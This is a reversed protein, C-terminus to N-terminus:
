AVRGEGWRDWASAVVVRRGSKRRRRVILVALTCVILLGTGFIWPMSGGPLWSLLPPAPPPGVERAALLRVRAVTKGRWRVIATGLQAGKRLPGDIQSPVGSLLVTTDEGHRVVQRVTEAALLSLTEERGSLKVSALRQGKRVAVVRRYREFGYRLLKMSSEDRAAESGAGIVVSLLQVGNRQASSVLLYGAENTHGTKVGTVWPQAFLLRNHNKLVL